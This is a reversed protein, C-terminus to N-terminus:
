YKEGKLAELAVKAKFGSSFQKYIEMQVRSKVGNYV